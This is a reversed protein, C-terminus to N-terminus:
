LRTSAEDPAGPPGNVGADGTSRYRSRAKRAQRSGARLAAEADDEAADVDADADGDGDDEHGTLAALGGSGQLASHSAPRLM